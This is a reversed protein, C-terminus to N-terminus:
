DKYIERRKCVIESLCSRKIAQKNHLYKHLIFLFKFLPFNVNRDLNIELRLIYGFNKIQKGLERRRLLTRLIDPL